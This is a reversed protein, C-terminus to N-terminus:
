TLVSLAHPAYMGEVRDLALERLHGSAFVSAIGKDSLKTGSMESIRLHSLKADRLTALLADDVFPSRSLALRELGPFASSELARGLNKAGELSLQSLSLQVLTFPLSSIDDGAWRTDQDSTIELKFSTLGKAAHGLASCLMKPPLRGAYWEFTRLAPLKAVLGFFALDDLAPIRTSPHPVGELAFQSTEAIREHGDLPVVTLRQVHGALEPSRYVAGLLSEPGDEADLLLQDEDPLVLHRAAAIKTATSFRSGFSALFASTLRPERLAHRVIRVLAPEPLQQLELM